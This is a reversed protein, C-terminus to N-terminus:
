QIFPKKCIILNNLYLDDALPFIKRHLNAYTNMCINTTKRIISRVVPIQEFRPMINRQFYNLRLQTIADISGGLKEYHVVNFGANQM